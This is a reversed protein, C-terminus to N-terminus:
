AARAQTNVAASPAIASCAAAEGPARCDVALLPSRCTPCLSTHAAADLACTEHLRHLCAPGAVCRQGPLVGELCIACPEASSAAPGGWSAPATFSQLRLQARAYTAGRRHVGGGGHQPTLEGREWRTLIRQALLLDLSRLRARPARPCV